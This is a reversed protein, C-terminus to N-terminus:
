WANTETGNYPNAEVKHRRWLLHQRGHLGHFRHLSTGLGHALSGHCFFECCLVLQLLCCAGLDDVAQHRDCCIFHLLVTDEGNWAEASELSTHLWGCFSSDPGHEALLHLDLGLGCLCDHLGEWDSCQLCLDLCLNLKGIHRIRGSTQEGHSDCPAPMSTLRLRLNPRQMIM